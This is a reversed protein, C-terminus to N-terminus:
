SLFVLFCFLVIFVREGERELKPEIGAGGSLRGRGQLPSQVGGLRLTDNGEEMEYAM